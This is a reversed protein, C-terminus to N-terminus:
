AEFVCVEGSDSHSSLPFASVKIGLQLGSNETFWQTLAAPSNGTTESSSLNHFLMWSLESGTTPQRPRHSYACRHCRASRTPPDARVSTGLQADDRVYPLSYVTFATPVFSSPLGTKKPPLGQRINRGQLRRPSFGGYPIKPPPSPFTPMMRRGTRAMAKGSLQCSTSFSLTKRSLLLSGGPGSDQAAVALSWRLTSLPCAPPRDLRFFAIRVGVDKNHASPLM